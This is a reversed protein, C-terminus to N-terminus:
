SCVSKEFTALLRACSRVRPDRELDRQPATAWDPRVRAFASAARKAGAATKTFIAACGSPVHTLTYQRPRGGDLRPHGHVGWVGDKSLWGPKQEYGGHTKIPVVGAKWALPTTPPAAFAPGELHGVWSVVHAQSVQVLGCRELLDLVRNYTDLSLSQQLAAYLHGSPVERRERISTAVASALHILAPLSETHSISM